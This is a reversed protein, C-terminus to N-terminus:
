KPRRKDIKSMDLVGIPEIKQKLVEEIPRLRVRALVKIKESKMLEVVHEKIKTALTILNDLDASSLGMVRHHQVSISTIGDEDFKESNYYGVVINEEFTNVSHAIHKDRYARYREHLSRETNSLTEIVETDLRARVGKMFPRSYRVLIATSLADVIEGDFKESEFHRQLTRALSNASSLDVAIGNLDALYTAESDTIPVYRYDAM